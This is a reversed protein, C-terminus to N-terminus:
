YEFHLGFKPSDVDCMVFLLYICFFGFIGHWWFLFSNKDKEVKNNRDSGFVCEVNSIRQIIANRKSKLQICIHNPTYM